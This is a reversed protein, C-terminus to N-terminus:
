PITERSCRFSTLVAHLWFPSVEKLIRQLQETFIEGRPDKEQFWSPKELPLISREIFLDEHAHLPCFSAANQISYINSKMYLHWFWSMNQFVTLFGCGRACLPERQPVTRWWFSYTCIPFYSTDYLGEGFSCLRPNYETCGQAALPFIILPLLLNRDSPSLKLDLGAKCVM